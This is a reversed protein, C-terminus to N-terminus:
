LHKEKFKTELPDNDTPWAIVCFFWQTCKGTGQLLFYKLLARVGGVNKLIM